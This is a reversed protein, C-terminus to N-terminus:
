LTCESLSTFSRTRCSKSSNWGTAIGYSTSTVFHQSSPIYLGRKPPGRTHLNYRSHVSLLGRFTLQPLQGVMYNPFAATRCAFQLDVD